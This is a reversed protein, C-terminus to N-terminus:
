ASAGLADAHAATAGRRAGAAALAEGATYLAAGLLFLDKLLFGKAGDDLGPTTFLFTLTTLFMGAGLLSGVASLSPLWRRTAILAAISLEVIGIMESGHQVSLIRYTWGLLPSHAVMPQIGSAENATWKAAGFFLLIFVLGYRLM